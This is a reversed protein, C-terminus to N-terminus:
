KHKSKIPHVDGVWDVDGMSSHYNPNVCGCHKEAYELAQSKNKAPIEWTVEFTYKSKVKYTKSM